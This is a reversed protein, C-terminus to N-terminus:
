HLEHNPFPCVPFCQEHSILFEMGLCSHSLSPPPSCGLDRGAHACLAKLLRCYLSSPSILAVREHPPNLVPRSSKDRMSVGSRRILMRPMTAHLSLSRRWRLREMPAAGMPIAGLTFVLHSGQRQASEAEQQTSIPKQLAPKAPPLNPRQRSCNGKSRGMSPPQKLLQAWVKPWRSDQGRAM